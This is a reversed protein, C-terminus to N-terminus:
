FQRMTRRALCFIIPSEFLHNEPKDHLKSVNFLRYFRNGIIRSAHNFGNDM